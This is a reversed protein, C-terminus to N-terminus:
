FVFNYIILLFLVIYNAYVIGSKLKVCSQWRSRQHCDNYNIDIFDKLNSYYLFSTDIRGIILNYQYM